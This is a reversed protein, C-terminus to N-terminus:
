ALLADLANYADAMVCQILQAPNQQQTGTASGRTASSSGPTQM